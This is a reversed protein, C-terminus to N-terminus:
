QQQMWGWCCRPAIYNCLLRRRPSWDGTMIVQAGGLFSLDNKLPIFIDSLESRQGDLAWGDLLRVSLYVTMVGYGLPRRRSRVCYTCLLDRLQISNWILNSPELYFKTSIWKLGLQLKPSWGVWCCSLIRATFLMLGAAVLSTYALDWYLSILSHSLHSLDWPIQRSGRARSHRCSYLFVLLKM